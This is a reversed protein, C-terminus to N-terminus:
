FYLQNIMIQILFNKEKRTIIGKKRCTDIWERLFIRKGSFKIVENMTEILDEFKLLNKQRTPYEWTKGHARRIIDQEEKKLVYSIKKHKLENGM